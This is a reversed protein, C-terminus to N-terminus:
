IVITGLLEWSAHPESFTLICYIDKLSILDWGLIWLYKDFAWVSIVRIM